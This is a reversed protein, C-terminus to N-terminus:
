PAPEIKKGTLKEFKRIANRRNLASVYLCNSDAETRANHVAHGDFHFNSAREIQKASVKGTKPDFEYLQHDTRRLVQGILRHEKEQEKNTRLETEPIIQPGIM